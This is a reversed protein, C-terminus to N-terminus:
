QPLPTETAPETAKKEAAARKAGVVLKTARQILRRTEYIQELMQENTWSVSVLYRLEDPNNLTEVGLAVQLGSTATHRVGANVDIGDFELSLGLDGRAFAPQLETDVGVFVGIPSEGSAFSHNGVGLHGSIHHIRPLNFTKSLVIFASQSQLAPTNDMRQEMWKPIKDGLNEIGVAVSPIVGSEKLLQAKLHALFYYARHRYRPLFHSLGGEVRDFLGFNLRITVADRPFQFSNQFAVYTGAEFIGHKLVRGTPIDVLGSEIFIEGKVPSSVTLFVSVLLFLLIRCQIQDPLLGFENRTNCKLDPFLDYQNRTHCAM